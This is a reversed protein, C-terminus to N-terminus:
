QPSWGEFLKVNKLRLDSYDVFEGLFLLPEDDSFDLTAFRGDSTRLDAFLVTSKDWYQFPLEGQVGRYRAMTKTSVSYTANYWNFVGSRQIHEAKAIPGPLKALFSVAYELMADSLWGSTGDQFVLHWENWSGQEYEYIIRGLVVFAKNRYIGETGIQIPSPDFPLDAVQGVKALNVDHRVLISKCYECTTQVSASWRFVVPAGCNPCNSAPQSM